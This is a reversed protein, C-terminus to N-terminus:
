VFNKCTNNHTPGRCEGTLHCHDRIKDTENIRECFQSINNKRNDEDDEETMIIDEKTKKLCFAM